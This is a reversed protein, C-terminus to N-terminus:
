SDLTRDATGLMPVYTFVEIVGVTWFIPAVAIFGKLLGSAPPWASYVICISLPVALMLILAVGDLHPGYPTRQRSLEIGTENNAIRRLRCDVACANTIPISLAMGGLM